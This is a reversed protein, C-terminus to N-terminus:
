AQTACLRIDRLAAATVCIDAPSPSKRLASTPRPDVRDRHLHPRLTSKTGACIHAPVLGTRHHAILATGFHVHPRIPILPVLGRQARVCLLHM